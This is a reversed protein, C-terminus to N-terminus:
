HKSHGSPRSGIMANISRLMEPRPSGIANWSGRRINRADPVTRVHDSGLNTGDMATEPSASHTGQASFM